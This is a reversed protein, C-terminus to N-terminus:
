GPKPHAPELVSVNEQDFRLLGRFGPHNREDYLQHTRARVPKVTVFDDPDFLILVDRNPVAAGVSGLEFKQLMKKRFGPDLILGSIADKNPLDLVMMRGDDRRLEVSGTATAVERVLNQVARSLWADAGITSSTVERISALRLGLLDEPIGLVVYVDATIEKRWPRIRDQLDRPGIAGLDQVRIWAGSKIVPIVLDKAQDLSRRRAKADEELKAQWQEFWASASRGSQRYEAFLPSTDLSYLQDGRVMVSTQGSRRAVGFGANVEGYTREARRQFVDPSLPQECGWLAIVGLILWRMPPAHQWRRIM